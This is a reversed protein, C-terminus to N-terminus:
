GYSLSKASSCGSASTIPMSMEGIMDLQTGGLRL